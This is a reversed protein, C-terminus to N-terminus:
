IRSWFGEIITKWNFRKMVDEKKELAPLDSQFYSILNDVVQEHKVEPIFIALGDFWRRTEPRDYVIPIAGCLLGELVPFEFGEKRRLACVYKSQNYKKVLEEDSIGAGLEYVEKGVAQAAEKCENVSEDRNNGITAIYKRELNLDKFIDPDVGLPAYYFSFKKIYQQWIANESKIFSPLDYYSWVLKANQWLQLWDDCGPNPTSRIATQIVAYKKGESLLRSATWWQKRRHGYAYIIVLEADKENEVFEIEKPSYKKFANEIRKMAFNNLVSNAFVKM